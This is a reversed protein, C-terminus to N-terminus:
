EQPKITVNDFYAYGTKDYRGAYLEFHKTPNDSVGTGTHEVLKEGDSNLVTANLTDENYDLRITLWEKEPLSVSEAQKGQGATVTKILNKGYHIFVQETDSVSFAIKFGGGPNYVDVSVTDGVEPVEEFKENAILSEINNSFEIKAVTETQGDRTVTEVFKGNTADYEELPSPQEFSTQYRVVPEPSVSQSADQSLLVRSSQSNNAIVTIRSDESIPASLSDGVTPSDLRAEVSDNIKLAVSDTTEDVSVIQVTAESDGSDLKVGTSTSASPSLQDGTSSFISYAAASIGVTIAILLIVAIVPSVAKQVSNKDYEM